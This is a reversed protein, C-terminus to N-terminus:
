GLGLREVDDEDLGFFHGVEHLITIEVENVLTDHDPFDALLNAYFLVIRTPAHASDGAAFRGSELGEFLGLARPDFGERVLGEHPFAELVVPVEELLPQFQEPIESLVREATSEILTLDEETHRGRLEAERTDLRLVELFHIIMGERDNAEECALARLYHANVHEPYRRLLKDLSAIGAEPGDREWDVTAREYLVKHHEPGLEAALQDVLAEAKDFDREDLADQLALWRPDALDDYRPM